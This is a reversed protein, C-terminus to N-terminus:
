TREVIWYAILGGGGALMLVSAVAGFETMVLFLANLPVTAAWAGLVYALLSHKDWDHMWYGVPVGCVLLYVFSFVAYFTAFSWLTYFEPLLFTPVATSWVWVALFAAVRRAWQGRSLSGHDLDQPPVRSAKSDGEDSTTSWEGM